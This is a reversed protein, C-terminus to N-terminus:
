NSIGLCDNQPLTRRGRAHNLYTTIEKNRQQLVVASFYVVAFPNLYKLHHKKNRAIQGHALIAKRPQQNTKATSFYVVFKLFTVFYGMLYTCERKCHVLEHPTVAQHLSDLQYSRGDLSRDFVVLM